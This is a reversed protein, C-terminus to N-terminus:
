QINRILRFSQIQTCWLTKLKKPNWPVSFINSAKSAFLKETVFNNDSRTSSRAIFRKNLPIGKSWEIDCHSVFLNSICDEVAMALSRVLCIQLIAWLFRSKNEFFWKFKYTLPGSGAELHFQTMKDLIPIYNNSSESQIYTSLNTSVSQFNVALLLPFLRIAIFFWSSFACKVKFSFFIGLRMVELLWTYDKFPVRGASQYSLRLSFFLRENGNRSLLISLTHTCM